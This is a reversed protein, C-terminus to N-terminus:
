QDIGKEIKFSELKEQITCIGNLLPIAVWYGVAVSICIFGILMKLALFKLESNDYGYRFLISMSIGLSAGLALWGQFLRSLLYKYSDRIYDVLKETAQNFNTIKNFQEDFYSGKYLGIVIACTASLLFFYVPDIIRPSQSFKVIAM